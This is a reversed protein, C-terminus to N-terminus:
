AASTAIYREGRWGPGRCLIIGGNFATRVRRSELMEFKQFAFEDLHHLFPLPDQQGVLADATQAV